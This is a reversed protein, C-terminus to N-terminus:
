VLEGYMEMWWQWYPIDPQSEDLNIDANDKGIGYRGVNKQGCLIEYAESIIKFKSELNTNGQNLDPHYKKALKRYAQRIATQDDAESVGLITRAKKRIDVTNV